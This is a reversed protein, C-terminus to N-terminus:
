TDIRLRALSLEAFRRLLTAAQAADGVGAQVADADLGEGAMRESLVDIYARMIDATFEPHFQVGWISDGIRYAHNPEMDSAALHVAGAPLEVVSQLHTVHATLPFDLAGLLPDRAAEPTGQLQM